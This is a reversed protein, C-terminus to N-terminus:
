IKGLAQLIKEPTFPWKRIWIGVADHIAIAIVPAAGNTSIEGVSKGGFPGFPDDTFVLKARFDEPLDNIMPVKYDKLSANLCRGTEDLIM